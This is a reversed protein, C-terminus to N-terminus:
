LITVSQAVDILSTADIIGIGRGTCIGKIAQAYLLHPSMCTSTDVFWIRLHNFAADVYKKKGTLLYASTLTSVNWSMTAIAKKHNTFNGPNNLGDRRIFPGSPNLSDPWWYDGESYYDHKNGNSRTCFSATVTEPKSKLIIEALKLIYAKESDIVKKQFDPNIVSYNQANLNIGTFGVIFISSIIILIYKM